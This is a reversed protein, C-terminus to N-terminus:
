DAGNPLHGSLSGLVDLWSASLSLSVCLLHSVQSARPRIIPQQLRHQGTSFPRLELLRWIPPVIALPHGHANNDSSPGIYQVLPTAPAALVDANWSCTEVVGNTVALSTGTSEHGTERYALVHGPGFEGIAFLQAICKTSMCQVVGADNRKECDQGVSLSSGLYRLKRLCFGIVDRGQLGVTSILSNMTCDETSHHSKSRCM